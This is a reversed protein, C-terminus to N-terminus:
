RDPTEAPLGLARRCFSQVARFAEARGLVPERLPNLGTAAWVVSQV